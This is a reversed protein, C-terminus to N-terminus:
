PGEIETILERVKDAHYEWGGVVEKRVRGRCEQVAHKLVLEVNKLEKLMVPAAMIMDVSINSVETGDEIFLIGGHLSM